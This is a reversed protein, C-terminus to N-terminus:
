GRAIKGMKGVTVVSLYPNWYYQVRTLSTRYLVSPCCDENGTATPLCALQVASCSIDTGNWNRSCYRTVGYMDDVGAPNLWQRAIM